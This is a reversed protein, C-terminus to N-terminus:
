HLPQKRSSSAARLTNKPNNKEKGGKKKKKRGCGRSNLALSTKPQVDERDTSNKRLQQNEQDLVLTGQPKQELFASFKPNFIDCPSDVGGERVNGVPREGEHYSVHGQIRM